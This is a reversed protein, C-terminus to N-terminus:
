ATQLSCGRPEARRARGKLVFGQTHMVALDETQVALVSWANALDVVRLLGPQGDPLPLGTEPCIALVRAWAM